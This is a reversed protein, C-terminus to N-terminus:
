YKKVSDIIKIEIESSTPTPRTGAGYGCVTDVTFSIIDTSLKTIKNYTSFPQHIIYVESQGFLSSSSIFVSLLVVKVLNCVNLKGYIIYM